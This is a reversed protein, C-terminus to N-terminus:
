KSIRKSRRRKPRPTDSGSGFDRQQTPWNENRPRSENNNTPTERSDNLNPRKQDNRACSSDSLQRKGLRSSNTGFDVFPTSTTMKRKSSTNASQSAKLLDPCINDFFSNKKPTTVILSNEDLKLMETEFFDEDDDDGFLDEEKSETKKNKSIEVPKTEEKAKSNDAPVKQLDTLGQKCQALILDAKSLLKQANPPSINKGDCLHKVAKPEDDTLDITIPKKDIKNSISLDKSTLPTDICKSSSIPALKEPSVSNNNNKDDKKNESTMLTENLPTRDSSPKYGSCGPTDASSLPKEIFSACNSSSPEHSSTPTETSSPSPRPPPRKILCKGYNHEELIQLVMQHRAKFCRTLLAIRRKYNSLDNRQSLFDKLDREGMSKTCHPFSPDLSSYYNLVKPHATVKKPDFARLLLGDLSTVRSLAVYSQGHEFAKALDIEVRDLTVGQSKHVSVAWALQLPIQSRYAMTKGGQLITNQEANILIETNNAFRVVPLVEDCGSEEEEDFMENAPNKRDFFNIVVGRAGNVLGGRVDKNSLLMVQAGVKLVLKKPFRATTELQKKYYENNAFDYADFTQTIGPLKNLETQNVRDCTSRLPFLCTPKIGDNPFLTKNCKQLVEIDLKTYSGVRLRNLLSVFGLEKQRFVKDLVVTKHICNKWADTEFAFRDCKVPPLQLFDGCLVLQIGGFPAYNQRVIRAVEEIKEFLFGDIMSIEDIILVQCREWRDKVEGKYRKYLIQDGYEKAPKDGLGIGAFSHLTSGGINCAAVGTSATVYVKKKPLSDIIKKLLFSKGVGASGTIFVSCKKILIDDVVNQQDESLVNSGAIINSSTTQSM